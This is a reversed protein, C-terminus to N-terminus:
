CDPHTDWNEINATNEQYNIINGGALDINVIDSLHNEPRSFYVLEKRSFDEDESSLNEGDETSNLQKVLQKCRTEYSPSAYFIGQAQKDVDSMASLTELTPSDPNYASITATAIDLVQNLSGLVKQGDPDIFLDIVKNKDFLYMNKMNYVDILNEVMESSEYDPPNANLAEKQLRDLTNRDWLLASKDSEYQELTNDLPCTNFTIIEYKLSLSKQSIIDFLHTAGVCFIADGPTCLLVENIKDAREKYTVEGAINEFHLPDVLHLLMDNKLAAKFVVNTHDENKYQAWFNTNNQTIIELLKKSCEAFFNEINNKKCIDLAFLELIFSEWSGHDEGILILLKKNSLQAKQLKEEISVQMQTYLSSVKEQINNEPHFEKIADAIKIQITPNINIETSVVKLFHNLQEKDQFQISNGPTIKKNYRNYGTNAEGYLKISYADMEVDQISPPTSIHLPYQKQKAM